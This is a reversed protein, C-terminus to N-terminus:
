QQAGCQVNLSHQVSSAPAKEKRFISMVRIHLGWQPVVLQHTNEASKYPAVVICLSNEPLLGRCSCSMLLMISCLMVFVVYYCMVDCSCSSPYYCCSDYVVCQLFLLVANFPGLGGRTKKTKKTKPSEIWPTKLRQRRSSGKPRVTYLVTNLDRIRAFM